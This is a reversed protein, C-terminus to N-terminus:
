ELVGWIPTFAPLSEAEAVDGIALLTSGVVAPTLERGSASTEGTEPDLAEGYFLPSFSGVTRGGAIGGGFLLASTHAWHDKGKDDNVSPTRGMESMVVVVTEEALTPTTVGPTLELLEALEALGAFLDEFNDSQKTENAEHSDWSAREFSLTVCRSLGLALLQVGLDVQGAFTGDTTWGVSDGLGEIIAAKDLAGAQAAAFARAAARDAGTRLGDVRARVHAEVAAAAAPDLGPTVQDSGALVSGDLLKGVQGEAGIRVVSRGLRGPMSRGGIVVHPLAFRTAAADAILTPWDAATEANSGTYAIRECSRHNVSPVILGNLILSQPAHREFFTSVSPRDPHEIFRLDGITRVAAEDEFSVAANGRSDAAFVRTPDWGGFNRVFIFRLDARAPASARAVGPWLSLGAAGLAAGQLLARRTPHAAWLGSAGRARLPTRAASRLLRDGQPM